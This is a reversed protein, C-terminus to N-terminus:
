LLEPHYQVLWKRVRKEFDRVAILLEQVDKESAEETSTYECTNRKIRCSDFYSKIPRYERGLILPIADISIRHHASKGPNSRFGHARLVITALQLAANYATAFRRDLSMYAVAADKVDREVIKFLSNIERVSPEHPKLLDQTLLDDLSTIM